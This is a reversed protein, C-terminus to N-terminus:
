RGGEGCGWCGGRRLAQGQVGDFEVECVPAAGSDRKVFGDAGEPGAITEACVDHGSEAHAQAVTVAEASGGALVAGVVGIAAGAVEAEVVVDGDQVGVFGGVM